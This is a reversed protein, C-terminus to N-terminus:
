IGLKRVGAIVRNVSCNLISAVSKSLLASLFRITNWIFLLFKWRFFVIQYVNIKNLHILCALFDSLVGELKTPNANRGSLKVLVILPIFLLPIAWVSRTTGAVVHWQLRLYDSACNGPLQISPFASWLEAWNVPVLFDM